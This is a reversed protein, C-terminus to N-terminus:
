YSQQYSHKAAAAAAAAARDVQNSEQYRGLAATPSRKRLKDRNRAAAACRVVVTRCAEPSIEMPWGKDLRIFHALDM